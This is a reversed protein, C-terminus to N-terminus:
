GSRFTDPVIAIWVNGAALPAVAGDALRYQTLANPGSRVWTIDLRQGDRFLEAAGKGQLTFRLSRSGGTDEIIDTVTERAYQFIVNSVVIQRGTNDDIMPGRDNFRLFGKQTADWTYSGDSPPGYPLVVNTAPTTTAGGPIPGVPFARPQDVSRSINLSKFFPELRALSSYLNYPAYRDTTRWSAGTLAGSDLDFGDVGSSRLLQEVPYSAGVHVLVGNWEPALELDVLRASRLNGITDLQQRVVVATFRSIGAEALTEYVVYASSLGRQPWAPQANDVQFLVPRQRFDWGFAAFQANLQGAPSADAPTSTPTVTPTPDATPTATPELTTSTSATSISDTTATLMSATATSSTIGTSTVASTATTTTLRAVSTTQATAATTTTSATQTAAGSNSCASLALPVLSGVSWLLFIRRRM